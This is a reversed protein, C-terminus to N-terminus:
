VGKIPIALLEALRYLALCILVQGTEEICLSRLVRVVEHEWVLNLDTSPIVNYDSRTIIVPWTTRVGVDVVGIEHHRITPVEGGALAVITAHTAANWALDDFAGRLPDGGDILILRSEM